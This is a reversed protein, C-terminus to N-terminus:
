RGPRMLVGSGADLLADGDGASPPGVGGDDLAADKYSPPDEVGDGALEHEDDHVDAATGQGALTYVDVSRVFEHGDGVAAPAHEQSAIDLLGAVEAEDAAPGDLDVAVVAAGQM